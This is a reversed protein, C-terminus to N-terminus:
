SLRRIGYSCSSIGLVAKKAYGASTLIIALPLSLSLALLVMAMHLPLHWLRNESLVPYYGGNERLWSNKALLAIPMGSIGVTRDFIVDKGAAAPLRSLYGSTAALLRALRHAMGDDLTHDYTWRSVDM